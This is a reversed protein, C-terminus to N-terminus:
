KDEKLIDREKGNPLDISKRETCFFRSHPANLVYCKNPDTVKFKACALCKPQIGRIAINSAGQSIRNWTTLYQGNPGAM